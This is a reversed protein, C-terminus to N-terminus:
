EQVLLRTVQQPLEVGSSNQERHPINTQIEYRKTNSKVYEATYITTSHQGFDTLSQATLRVLGM